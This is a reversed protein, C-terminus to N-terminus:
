RWSIEMATGFISHIAIQRLNYGNGYIHETQLFISVIVASRPVCNQFDSYDTNETM